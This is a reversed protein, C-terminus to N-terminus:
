HQLKVLRMEIEAGVVLQLALRRLGVPGLLDQLPQESHSAHWILVGPAILKPAEHGALKKWLSTKHDYYALILGRSQQSVRTAM